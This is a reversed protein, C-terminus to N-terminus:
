ALGIGGDVNRPGAQSDSDKRQCGENTELGATLSEYDQGNLRERGKVGKM